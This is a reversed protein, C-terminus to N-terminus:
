LSDCFTLWATFASSCTEKDREAISYRSKAVPPTETRRDTECAPLADFSAVNEGRRLGLNVGVTRGQDWPFVGQSSKV